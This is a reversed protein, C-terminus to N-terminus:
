LWGMNKSIMFTICLMLVVLVVACGACGKNRGMQEKEKRM